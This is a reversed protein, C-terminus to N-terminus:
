CSPVVPGLYLLLLFSVCCFCSTASCTDLIKTPIFLFFLICVFSILCLGHSYSFLRLFFCLLAVEAFEGKKRKGIWFKLNWCLFFVLLFLHLVWTSAFPHCHSLVTFSAYHLPIYGSFFSIWYAFGWFLGWFRRVVISLLFLLLKSHLIWSGCLFIHAKLKLHLHFSISSSPPIPGLFSAPFAAFAVCLSIYLLLPAILFNISAESSSFGNFFTLSLTHTPLLFLKSIFLRSLTFLLM